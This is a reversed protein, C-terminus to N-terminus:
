KTAPLIRSIRYENLMNYCQALRMNLRDPTPYFLMKRFAVQGLLFADDFKTIHCQEHINKTESVANSIEVAKSKNQDDLINLYAVSLGACYGPDVFIDVPKLCILSEAQSKSSFIFCLFLIQFFFWTYSFYLRYM